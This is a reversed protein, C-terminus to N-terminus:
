LCNILETKHKKECTVRGRRRNELVQKSEENLIVNKMHM